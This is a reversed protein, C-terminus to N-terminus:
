RIADMLRQVHGRRDRSLGLKEVVLVAHDVSIPRIASVNRRSAVIEDMLEQATERDKLKTQVLDEEVQLGLSKLLYFINTDALVVSLIVAEAVLEPEKCPAIEAFLKALANMRRFRKMCAARPYSLTLLDVLYLHM